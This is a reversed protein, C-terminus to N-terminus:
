GRACHKILDTKLFSSWNSFQSFLILFIFKAFNLTPLLEILTYVILTYAPTLINQCNSGLIKWSLDFILGMKVLCWWNKPCNYRIQSFMTSITCNKSVFVGNLFNSNLLFSAKSNVDYVFFYLNPLWSIM